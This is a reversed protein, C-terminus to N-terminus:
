EKRVLQYVDLLIRRTEQQQETTEKRTQSHQDRFEQKAGEIDQTVQEELRDIQLTLRKIADDQADNKLAQLEKYAIIESALMNTGNYALVDAGKLDYYGAIGIGIFTMTTFIHGINISKDLHFVAKKRRENKDWETM